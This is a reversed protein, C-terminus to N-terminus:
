INFLKIANNTTIRDVDEKSLGKIEAMEECVFRVYSSENRKGRYPDPALFPSDTEILLNNIDIGEAVRKPEQSLGGQLLLCTFLLSILLLKIVQISDTYM